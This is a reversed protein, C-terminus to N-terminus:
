HYPGNFIRALEFMFSEVEDFQQISDLHLVSDPKEGWSETPVLRLTAPLFPTIQAIRPTFGLMRLSKRLRAPSLHSLIFLQSM